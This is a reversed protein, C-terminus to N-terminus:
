GIKHHIKNQSQSQNQPPTLHTNLSNVNLPEREAIDDNPHSVFSLLVLQPKLIPSTPQLKKQQRYKQAILCDTPRM